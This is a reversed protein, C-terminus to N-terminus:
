PNAGAPAALRGLMARAEAFDPKLRLAAEYHSRADAIRGSQLLANALNYHTRPNDPELSLAAELHVIADPLRGEQVLANGLNAQAKAYRPDLRIAEGFERIAEEMRGTRALANGLDYHAVVYDPDQRLAERYEALADDVKGADFLALGLNGHAEPYHAKIQVAKRYAGIADPLRGMEVLANGLNYYAEAFAPKIWVAASFEDAAEPLRHALRLDNGLNNHAEAYGPWLRLAERYQAMALDPERATDLAAGLNNHARANEPLKAVADSWIAVGSRYDQNRRATMAGLGAALALCVPLLRRGAFAQLALVALMVIAALPLYMRHEAITQTVLPVVSSSPALIVFFWSGVFGLVPRRVLAWAVAALLAALLLMQPWVDAARQILYGGYDIVLPHPWVSLRLYLAVARCQTLAYHWPSVGLGFGAAIGRSGGTRVLLGALLLGNAALALYYPRRKRWSDAFTGAIFTRDYLFVIIPATVMAEKTAMGLLCALWSLGFWSFASGEAGRVFCYLTLLYLLGMLSETRQIVCTVSETLLPHVAWLLAVAFAVSGAPNASDRGFRAMTRRVIGFLTLAALIHIALNTAHYSWVRTGSIAYDVALSLNVLPRGSASSGDAPPSLVERVRGLHRITANDTIAPIDDFFFPSAFTGAYVALTALAIVCVALM